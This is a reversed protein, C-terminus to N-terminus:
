LGTQSMESVPRYTLSKKQYDYENGRLTYIDSGEVGLVNVILDNRKEFKSIGKISLPFELGSRDYTDEFRVLNSIREPHSRIDVYHATVAWKFCEKDSENKPNIMTRKNALRNPLPLYSSCQTLNLQRFNIDM